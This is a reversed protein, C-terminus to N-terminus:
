KIKNVNKELRSLAKEIYLRPCAINFRQFGEGGSGFMTGTNLGLKVNEIIFKELKKQNFGLKRMDVWLLYTGEPKIVNIDPIKEKVYDCFFKINSQLYDLLQELYEDGFNYAAELATIGMINGWNQGSRSHVFNDRLEKNPIIAVSQSLGALNYTKSPAIFTISNNEFVESLSGFCIHKNSKYVIDCHIEDSIVTCNNEICINGLEHLEERTWVRGVPNHPSCLIISKPKVKHPNEGKDVFKSKLDEFDMSYRNDKFSLKNEAVCCGNELIANKFPHYVPTQIIVSDGPANISKVASYVGSVVGDCFVIWERKINWGYARKVKSIVAAYASEPAFGYGYVPHQVRKVVADVIPKACEFDMDAVWMPLVDETGFVKSNEDWKVSNTNKRDIIKDFNYKM